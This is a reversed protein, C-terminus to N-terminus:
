GLPLRLGTEATFAGGMQTAMVSLALTEMDRGALVQPDDTCSHPPLTWALWAEGVVDVAEVRLALNGPERGRLGFRLLARLAHVLWNENVQFGQPLPEVFAADLVMGGRAADEAMGRLARLTLRRPDGLSTATPSERGAVEAYDLMSAFGDLLVQGAARQVAAYDAVTTSPLKAAIADALGIIANLPTRMAHSVVSLLALRTRDAAKAAELASRLADREARRETVDRQVAVWFHVWGTADAVPTLSVEVWFRSGDKRRNLLEAECPQWNAMAERLRRREAPDTGDHDQLFRPALGVAEEAPYGTMETFARNVYLMRPGPPTSDPETIVIADRTLDALRAIVKALSPVTSPM